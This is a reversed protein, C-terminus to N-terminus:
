VGGNAKDIGNERTIGVKTNGDPMGNKVQAVKVDFPLGSGFYPSKRVSTGRIFAINLQANFIPPSYKM